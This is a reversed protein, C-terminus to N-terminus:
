DEKSSFVTISNKSDEESLTRALNDMTGSGILQKSENVLIGRVFNITTRFSRAGDASVSFSNEVSEVHALVFIADKDKAKSNYNKTVGILEADFMINDGVPIYEDSGYLTVTGNLLRHCDFYWEQALLAWKELIEFDIEQEEGETKFPLQRVSFILPRFGERSYVDSGDNEGQRAQSKHQFLQSSISDSYDPKIELFNIKDGWNVGVSVDIIAEDDLYHSAINQFMSRMETSARDTGDIEASVPTDRYSFPKIRCYLRFEPKDLDWRMEPFTENMAYNSHEQIVSWLSHQGILSSPTLVAIGTINPQSDDYNDEGEEKLRGTIIKLLKMFDNPIPAEVPASSSRRYLFDILEKPLVVEYTAKFLRGTNGVNLPEGLVSLITTINTLVDMNNNNGNSDLCSNLLLQYGMSAQGSTDSKPDQIMPDVYLTNEFIQGWDRGQVSYSTSRAGSEDVSVNTRVADIRGIMKLQTAKAEQISEKTIVENSMLIACWSGPTLVATWNRTPALVLNFTGVPNSKTKNTSISILSVTSIITENVATEIGPYRDADEDRSNYAFGISSIRDDYNWVIVAAHPTKILSM